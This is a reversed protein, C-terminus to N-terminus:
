IRTLNHEQGDVIAAPVLPRGVIPDWRSWTQLGTGHRSTVPVSVMAFLLFLWVPAEMRFFAAETYNFVLGVFIYTLRLNGTPLNSQWARFASRYGTALVVALLAIGVWGLNLFIELYGNHAEGPHWWYIHWLKELRSGLWFSEFGTGLLHNETLRVLAGWVETRGTLTPNRGMAELADPSVGFFVISASVALMSAIALHVIAPRRVVARFNSVVLLVSAMLLTSTATIANIKGFLYIVMALVVGQAIMQRTRGTVEHSRYATLLRWLTGVGFCLCIAGLANKNNTVGALDAGGGWPGYHVGLNPYYKIFLISLPILIYTTRALIRKVAALPERDSLVIWVMVVDGVVRIWRKFAVDPYDSWLLSVACYFVFLLIPGNARLLKAVQKRRAVLVGIGIALLCTYVMRDIPSGELVQDATDSEGSGVQLWAGVPRSCAIAFWVTPIWLAGSTRVKTDRDLWFLGLIVCAFVVAAIAPSM